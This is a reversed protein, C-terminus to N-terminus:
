WAGVRAVFASREAITVMAPLDALNRGALLEHALVVCDRWRAALKPDESGTRLWLALLLLREAWAEREAPLVEQLVRRVAVDPKLRPKVDVLARIAADDDFWSQMMPDDALWKGSRQISATIAATSHAGAGLEAFLRETEVTVDLGRDKWDAAGIAEAIQVIPTQPLHGAALGCAIHHQVVVDLHDRGIARSVVEQQMEKLSRSIEQRPVSLNCWADRVGFGQKLLLGAFLGVRGAPTTLILSQAGSGDVVSCQIAVPAAPAWQACAVGKVRAKRVVRDIAEREAEPVWNRVLLTRRLMVPSFTEPGAVQELVAAATQRVKPEPDLLLLPAAERLVAHPSLGLEHTLYARLDPPMLTGTEALGEVVMFPDEASRGLEDFIGRLERPIDQPTLAEGPTADVAALTLAQAMEPRIPVKADKLLNVLVFWDAEALTNTRALEVLKEQYADLMARAWDHGRELRYRILELQNALLWRCAVVLAEDREHATGAAVAADLLPWLSQPREEMWATGAGDLSPTGHRRLERAVARTLAKAQKTDAPTPPPAIVDDPTEDEATESDSWAAAVALAAPIDGSFQEVTATHLANAPKASKASAKKAAPKAPM